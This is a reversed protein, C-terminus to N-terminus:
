RIIFSGKFSLIEGNTNPMTFEIKGEGKKSGAGQSKDFSTFIIHGTGFYYTSLDENYRIFSVDRNVLYKNDMGERLIEQGELPKIEYEKNLIVGDTIPLYILINFKESKKDGDLYLTSTLSISEITRDLAINSPPVYDLKPGDYAGPPLLASQENLYKVGDKVLELKNGNKLTVGNKDCSIFWFSILFLYLVKKMIINNLTLM